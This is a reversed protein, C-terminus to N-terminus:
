YIGEDYATIAEEISSYIGVIKGNIRLTFKETEPELSIKVEPEDMNLVIEKKREKPTM